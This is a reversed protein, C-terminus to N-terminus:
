VNLTVGNTYFLSYLKIFINNAAASTEGNELAPPKDSTTPLKGFAKSFFASIAIKVGRCPHISLSFHPILSSSFESIHIVKPEEGCFNLSWM